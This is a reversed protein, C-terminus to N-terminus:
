CRFQNLNIKVDTEEIRVSITSVFKREIKVIVDDTRKIECIDNKDIGTIVGFYRCKSTLYTVSMIIKQEKEM